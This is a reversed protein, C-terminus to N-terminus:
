GSICHTSPLCVTPLGLVASKASALLDGGRLHDGLETGSHCEQHWLPLGPPFCVDHVCAQQALMGCSMHSAQAGTSRLKLGVAARSWYVDLATHKFDNQVECTARRRRKSVQKDNPKKNKNNSEKKDEEKKAPKDGAQKPQKPAANRKPTTAPKKQVAKPSPKDECPAAKTKRKKECAAAKGKFKDECPAAKGKPKDQCAASPRKMARNKPKPARERKKDEQEARRLFDPPEVESDTALAVVSPAPTVPDPQGAPVFPSPTPCPTMEAFTAACSSNGPSGTQQPPTCPMEVAGKRPPSPSGLEITEVAAEQLPFSITLEPNRRLKQLSLLTYVNHPKNTAPSFSLNLDQEVFM